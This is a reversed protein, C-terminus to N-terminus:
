FARRRRLRCGKMQVLAKRSLVGALYVKSIGAAQLVIEDSFGPVVHRTPLRDCFRKQKSILSFQPLIQFINAFWKPQLDNRPVLM